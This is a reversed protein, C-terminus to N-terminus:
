GAIAQEHLRGGGSDIGRRERGREDARDLRRIAREANPPRLEPDHAGDRELDRLEVLLLATVRDLYHAVAGSDAYSDVAQRREDLHGLQHTDALGTGLGVHHARLPEFTREEL